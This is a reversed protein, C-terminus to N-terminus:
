LIVTAADSSSSAPATIITYSINHYLKAYPTLTFYNM